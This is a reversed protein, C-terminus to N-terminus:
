VKGSVDVVPQVLLKEQIAIRPDSPRGTVSVMQVIPEMDGGADIAAIQQEYEADPNAAKDFGAEAGYQEQVDKLMEVRGCWAVLPMYMEREEETMDADKKPVGDETTPRLLNLGLTSVITKRLTTHAIKFYSEEKQRLAHYEFM